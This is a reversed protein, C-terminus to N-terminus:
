PNPNPNSKLLRLPGGCIKSYRLSSERRYLADSDPSEPPNLRSSSGRNVRSQMRVELALSSELRVAICAKVVQLAPILILASSLYPETKDTYLFLGLAAVLSYIGLAVWRVPRVVMDFADEPTTELLAAEDGRGM